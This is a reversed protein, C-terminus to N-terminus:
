DMVIWEIHESGFDTGIGGCVFKLEIKDLLKADSDERWISPGQFQYYARFDRYLQNVLGETELLNLSRSDEVFAMYKVGKSFKLTDLALRSAYSHLSLEAVPWESLEAPGVVAVSKIKSLDVLLSPDPGRKFKGYAKNVIARPSLYLTDIDNNFWIRQGANDGFYPTYSAILTDHSDKCAYYLPNLSDHDTEIVEMGGGLNGIRQFRSLRVVRPGPLAAKWIKLRLEPPLKPFLKFSIEEEDADGSEDHEDDQIPTATKGSANKKLAVKKKAIRASPTDSDEGNEETLVTNKALTTETKTPNMKAANISSLRVSRRQGAASRGVKTEFTVKLKRKALM